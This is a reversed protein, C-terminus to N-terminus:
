GGGSNNSVLFQRLDIRISKNKVTIMDPIFAFALMETREQQVDNETARTVNQATDNLLVSMNNSANNNTMVLLASISLGPNESTNTANPTSIAITENSTSQTENVDALASFTFSFLVLFLLICTLLAAREVGMKDM